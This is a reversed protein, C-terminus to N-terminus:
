FLLIFNSPISQLHDLDTSKTDFNHLYYKDEVKHYVKM